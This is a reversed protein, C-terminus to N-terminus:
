KCEIPLLQQTISAYLMADPQWTAFCLCFIESSDAESTLVTVSSILSTVGTADDFQVVDDEDPLQPDTCKFTVNSVAPKGGTVTCTIVDGSRLFNPADVSTM